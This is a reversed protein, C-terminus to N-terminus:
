CSYLPHSTTLAFSLLSSDILKSRYNKLLRKSFPAKMFEYYFFSLLLTMIEWIFPFVLFLLSLSKLFLFSTLIPELM